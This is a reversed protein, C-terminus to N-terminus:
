FLEVDQLYHTLAEKHLYLYRKKNKQTKPLRLTRRTTGNPEKLVKIIQIRELEKAMSRVEPLQVRSGMRRLYEDALHHLAEATIFFYEHDVYLDSAIEECNEVAILNIAGNQIQSHFATLIIAMPNQTKVISENKKLIETVQIDTNQLFQRKYEANLFGRNEGYQMIIEAMCMLVAYQESVRPIRFKGRKRLEGCIRKIEAVTYDFYQTIYLLFDYLHTPFIDPNQQHSSLRDNYVQNRDIFLTIRRTGSSEIGENDIGEGTIVCGGKVPYSQDGMTGKMRTIKTRDGYLRSLLELKESMERSQRGYLGPRFDDVLLPADSYKSVMTEIGGKTSTFTIDPDYCERNFIKTYVWALSTKRSNTEGILAVIFKIPFGALDFLTTLCSLHAYLFLIKGIADDKCIGMMSMAAQFIEISGIASPNYRFILDEAGCLEPFHNGIVGDNIVYCFQNQVKKWGNTLYVIKKRIHPNRVLRRIENIFMKTEEKNQLFATGASADSVWLFSELELIGVEKESCYLPTCVEFKYKIETGNMVEFCYEIRLLLTIVCDRIQFACDNMATIVNPNSNADPCAAIRTIPKQLVQMDTINQESGRENKASIELVATEKINNEGRNGSNGIPIFSETEQQSLEANGRIIPDILVKTEEKILPAFRVQDEVKVTFNMREGEGYREIPSVLVKEENNFDLCVAENGKSGSETNNNFYPRVRNSTNEHM